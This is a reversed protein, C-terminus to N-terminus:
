EVVLKANVLNEKEFKKMEPIAGAAADSVGDRHSYVAVATTVKQIKKRRKDGTRAVSGAEKSIASAAAAAMAAAAAAAAAITAPVPYATADHDIM